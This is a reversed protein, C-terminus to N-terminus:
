KGSCLKRLTKTATDLCWLAVDSDGTYSWAVKSVGKLDYVAVPKDFDRFYFVRVDDKSAIALYQGYHDFEIATIASQVDIDVFQNQKHMSYVRCMSFGHWTVALHYGKNSFRLESV